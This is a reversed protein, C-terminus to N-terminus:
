EYDCGYHWSVGIPSGAPPAPPEYFEFKDPDQTFRAILAAARALHASQAPDSVRDLEQAIWQNLEDLKFSAVARVQPSADRSAALGILRELVAHDVVRQIDAAFGDERAAKWTQSLLQDITEELSPHLDLRGHQEVLRAARDPNLIMRAVLDAINEAATLPDFTDGTRRKFIERERPLGTTQPPLLALITDPIALEEPKLCALLTKLARWQDDSSVPTSTQPGSGRLALGYELGGLVKACAEIQYRHFLYIPAFAEELMVMPAGEPIATEAFNNLLAARLKLLRELEAPADPGNDWLHAHPQASGEPRADADSVFKLGTAYVSDLVAALASDVDAGQPFQAYGYVIAAKDWEGVGVGYAQSLDVSGDKGLVAFPYAYDMVSARNQTSAIYNHQLGLTHGVEHAALQRLRALAMEQMPNTSDVFPDSESEYPQLLGEAILYDQRARLSGLTVHGKLIEGTRPDSVTAGYAWGRTSRHIWQITNYRLDLFSASDPMIEVRFANIFGAAEFAQSWWRAGDILAQRMPEPAAPDVYYVIPTVVESRAAGPNKKVLRHRAIFRKVLPETLPSSYDAYESAFYGCRVDWPRPTYGSDPLQVLSHHMQLTVADATPTVSAVLPGASDATFTLISEFETNLPFSGCGELDFASRSADLKFSGQGSRRLAGVVDRADRLLFDTADVLVRGGDQASVEFGWLVSAAFSEAAAREAAPGGETARYSYNKQVLLVKPGIRRFYVVYEGAIQGRDLGVDNAGLGRSLYTVYLFEQDFRDIELWIKGKAEDWYYRFFGPRATMGSTADAISKTEGAALCPLATAMLWM